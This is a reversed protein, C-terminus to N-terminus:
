SPRLLLQTSKGHSLVGPMTGAEHSHVFDMKPYLPMMVSLEGCPHYPQFLFPLGLEGHVHVMISVARYNMLIKSALSHVQVTTDVPGRGM